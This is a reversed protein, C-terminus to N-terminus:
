EACLEALTKSKPLTEPRYGEPLVAAMMEASGLYDAQVANFRAVFDADTLRLALAAYNTADPAADENAIELIDANDGQDLVAQAGSLLIADARKAKFAALIETLGPLAMINAKPIGAKQAAILDAGGAFGALIANSAIIDGFNNLDKPNGKSVVLAFPSRMMPETFAVNLCREPNIFMGGTNIDIRGAKLAPTLAGWDMPITEVSEIGMRKLVAITFINM